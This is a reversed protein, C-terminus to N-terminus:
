ELRLIHDNPCWVVVDFCYSFLLYQPKGTDLVIFLRGPGGTHYFIEALHRDAVCLRDAYATKMPLKTRGTRDFPTYLVGHAFGPQTLSDALLIAFLAQLLFAAALNHNQMLRILKPM